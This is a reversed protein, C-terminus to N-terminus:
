NLGLEKDTMVWRQARQLSEQSDKLLGLATNCHLCLLGRVRGSTHCHDVSLARPLDDAPTKCIGCRGGQSSLMVAYDAETVGYKDLLHRGRPTLGSISPRRKRGGLEPKM